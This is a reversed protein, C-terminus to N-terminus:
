GLGTWKLLGNRFFTRELEPAPETYDELLGRVIWGTEGAETRVRLQDGRMHVDGCMRLELVTVVEGLKLPVARKGSRDYLAVSGGRNNQVVREQGVCAMEGLDFTPEPEEPLDCLEETLIQEASTPM